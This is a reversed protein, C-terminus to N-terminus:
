ASELASGVARQVESLIEAERERSCTRAVVVRVGGAGLADELASTLATASDVTVASIGLSSAVEAIDIGLPNGFVRDFTSAATAGAQELTSFIGGGDNDPVVIV